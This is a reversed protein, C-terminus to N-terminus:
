ANLIAMCVEHLGDTVESPRHDYHGSSWLYYYRELMWVLAEARV